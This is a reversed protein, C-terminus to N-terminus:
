SDQRSPETELPLPQGNAILEGVRKGESPFDLNPTSGVSRALQPERADIFTKLM